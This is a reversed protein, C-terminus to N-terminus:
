TIQCQAHACNFGLRCFIPPCDFILPPLVFHHTALQFRSAPRSLMHPALECPRDAFCAVDPATTAANINTPSSIGSWTNRLLAPM